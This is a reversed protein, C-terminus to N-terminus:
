GPNQCSVAHYIKAIRRFDKSNMKIERVIISGKLFFFLFRPDGFWNEKQLALNLGVGMPKMRLEIYFTRSHGNRENSSAMKSTYSCNLMLINFFFFSFLVSFTPACRPISGPGGAKYGSVSVM